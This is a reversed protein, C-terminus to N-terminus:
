FKWVLLARRIKVREKLSPIYNVRLNKLSHVLFFYCERFRIEQKQLTSDFDQLMRETQSKVHSFPRGVRPKQTSNRNHVNLFKPQCLVSLSGFINCTFPCTRFINSKIRRWSPSFLTSTQRMADCFPWLNLKRSNGLVTDSGGAETLHNVEGSVCLNRAFYSLSEASSM